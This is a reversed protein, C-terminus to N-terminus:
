IEQYPCGTLDFRLSIFGNWQVPNIRVCLAVVPVPFTNEVLTNPADNGPFVKIFPLLLLTM